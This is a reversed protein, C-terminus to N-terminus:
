LLFVPVPFFFVCPLRFKTKFTDLVVIYIKIIGLGGILSLGCLMNSM